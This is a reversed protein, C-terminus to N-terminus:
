IKKFINEAAIKWNNKNRLSILNKRIEDWM